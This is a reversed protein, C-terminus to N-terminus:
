TIKEVKSFQSLETKKNTEKEKRKKKKKKKQYSAKTKFNPTEKSKVTTIFVKKRTTVSVSLKIVFKQLVIKEKSDPNKM